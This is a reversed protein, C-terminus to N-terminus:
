GNMRSADQDHSGGYLEEYVGDARDLAQIYREDYGQMRAIEALKSVVTGVGNEEILKLLTQM